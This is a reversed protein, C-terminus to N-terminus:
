GNEKRSGRADDRMRDVFKMDSEAVSPMPALDTKDLTPLTHRCECTYHAKPADQEHVMLGGNEGHAEIYSYIPSGCRPCNGAHVYDTMTVDWANFHRFVRWFMGESDGKACFQGM